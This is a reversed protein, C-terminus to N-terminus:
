KKNAEVILNGEKDEMYTINFGASPMFGNFAKENWFTRHAYDWAGATRKHPVVIKITANASMVRKLEGMLTNLETYTLHEFFHSCYIEDITEDVFPLGKRVDWVIEQGFDRFDIGIFGDKKYTGCGIDIKRGTQSIRM